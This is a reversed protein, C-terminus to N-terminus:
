WAFSYHDKKWGAGIGTGFLGQSWTYRDHRLDELTSWSQTAVRLSCIWVPYESQVVAGTERDYERKIVHQKQVMRAGCGGCYRPGTMNM